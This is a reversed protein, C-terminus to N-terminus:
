RRAWPPLPSNTKGAPLQPVRLMLGAPLFIMLMYEPNAQLLVYSLMESGYIRLALTDWTDGQKTETLWNM